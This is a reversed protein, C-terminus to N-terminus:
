EHGPIDVVIRPAEAPAAQDAGGFLGYHKGLMECSRLIEAPKAEEEGRLIRTLAQLVEDPKAISSRRGM